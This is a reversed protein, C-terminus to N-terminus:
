ASGGEALTTEERADMYIESVIVWRDGAQRQLVKLSHNRRLGLQGGAATQQGEREIYTKVVAVDDAVFRISAQPPGTPKGAAFHEDAYLSELYSVIEGSGKRTTGFANTWDADDAYIGELPATDLERFSTGLRM